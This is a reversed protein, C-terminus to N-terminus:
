ARKWFKEEEEDLEMEAEEASGKCCKWVKDWLDIKGIIIKGGEVKM